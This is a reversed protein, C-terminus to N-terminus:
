SKHRDPCKPKIKNEGARPGGNGGMGRRVSDTPALQGQFQGKSAEAASATSASHRVAAVLLCGCGLRSSMVDVAAAQAASSHM